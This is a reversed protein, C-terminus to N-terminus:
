ALFGIKPWPGSLRGFQAFAIDWSARASVEEVGRERGAFRGGPEVDGFEAIASGFGAGVPIAALFVVRGGIPSERDAWVAGVQRRGRGPGGLAGNKISEAAEGRHGSIDGIPGM